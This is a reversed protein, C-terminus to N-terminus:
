GSFSSIRLMLIHETQGARVEERVSEVSAGGLVARDMIQRARVNSVQGVQLVGACACRARLM